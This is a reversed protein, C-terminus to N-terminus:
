GHSSIAIAEFSGRSLSLSLLLRPLLFPTLTPRKRFGKTRVLTEPFCLTDRFLPNFILRFFFTFEKLLCATYEHHARTPLDMRRFEDAGRDLREQPVLVVKRWSGGLKKMRITLISPFWRERKKKKKKQLLWRSEISFHLLTYSFSM